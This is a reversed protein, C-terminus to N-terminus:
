LYFEFYSFSFPFLNNIPFYCERNDVSEVAM